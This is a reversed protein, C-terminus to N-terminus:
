CQTHLSLNRLVSWICNALMAYSDANLSARRVGGGDTTRWRALRHVMDPGYALPDNTHKHGLVLPQDEIQPEIGATAIRTHMMEHLFYSGSTSLWKMQRAYKTNGSALGREVFNLKEALNDLKFFPPCIAIHHYWALWGEVTWAYGGISKNGKRKHCWNKPDKCSLTIYARSSTKSTKFNAVRKFNDSIRTQENYFDSGMYFLGAAVGHTKQGANPFPSAWNALTAAHWVATEIMSKQSDSCGSDKDFYLYGGSSSILAKFCDDSPNDGDCLDPQVPIGSPYPNPIRSPFTVNVPPSTPNSARPNLINDSPEGSALSQLLAAAFSSLCLSPLTRRM